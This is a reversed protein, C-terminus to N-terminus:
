KLFILQRRIEQPSENARLIRASGAVMRQFKGKWSLQTIMLAIHSETVYDFLHDDKGEGNNTNESQKGGGGEGRIHEIGDFARHPQHLATFNPPAFYGPHRALPYRHRTAARWRAPHPPSTRTFNDRRPLSKEGFAAFRGAAALPM